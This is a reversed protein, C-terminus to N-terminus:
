RRPGVREIRLLKQRAIPFTGEFEHLVPEWGPIQDRVFGVYYTGVYATTVLLTDGVQLEDKALAPHFDGAEVLALRNVDRPQHLLSVRDAYFGGLREPEGYKGQVLRVVVREDALGEKRPHPGDYGPLFADVIAGCGALALLAAGTLVASLIKKM